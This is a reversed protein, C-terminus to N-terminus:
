IYQKSLPIQTTERKQLLYVNKLFWTIVAKTDKFVFSLSIEAGNLYIM